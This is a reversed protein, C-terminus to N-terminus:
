KGSGSLKEAIGKFNIINVQERLWVAFESDSEYEYKEIEAMAEDVGNMSFGRCAELLKSLVQADLKDKKPKPNKLDIAKIMDELGNILQRVSELFADNHKNIFNLDGAIAAKELSKAKEGIEDAFISFSTGKIGHVAIEYSKLNEESVTKLIELLHRNDTVYSRLINLYTNVNGDYKKLGQAIDLGPIESDLMISQGNINGNEPPPEDYNQLRAAEIVEPPQKDRVFRNLVSDLQRIDIPKSIFADFGNQFYKEAQGIVANATLAVIPSSYGLDRLYHTTEVGDMGPMMHDMFVVDYVKGSQIKDIAEQGGKATDVKLKYPRLLGAAVYMNTEIDDVVLVNGYPMPERVIQLRKRHANYDFRFNRLNDTLEKGLTQSGAVEQPLRVTFLSGKGAESHVHIDGGMLDVLSQTITLGLGVGDITRNNSQDFRSYEDFLRSVQEPTMGFGTDKVSIVLIIEKDTLCPQLGVSLIVKGSETYKFANSLLNSLIQKIRLDDGILNLPLNEDIELEFEIPKSEIWMVSLQVSDSILSAVEYEVPVIDLKGAEIKSFDLIDNIIGLLLDCSNHIRYLGDATKESLTEDQTLIETVGMIANMPTRIEHSMKALFRSKAKDSEAAVEAKRMEEIVAKQERLDRFYEVVINEGKYKVRIMTLECPLLEGALSQYVFEENHVFGNELALNIHKFWLPITRSGDPQFKPLCDFIRMRYENKNDIGLFSLAEQNCDIIEHDHSILHCSLPMSDLMLQLRKEDELAKDVAIQLKVSIDRINLVMENRLLANAFLLGSSSLIAVEEESFTREKSCDDFGAFGWFHDEIFVPVALISLVGQKSLHEKVEPVMDRVRSNITGGSSLTEEWGPAVESYPINTTLENGQQPQAGGSWEFIQTCCLVGDLEHNRWLFVRDVDVVEAVIKMSQILSSDLSDIDANLMLIAARNVARLLSDRHEIQELMRLMSDSYDFEEITEMIKDHERSERIIGAVVYDDGYRIRTLTVEAPLLKGEGPIQHMWDGAWAGEEFAKRVSVLAKESASQGDTQYEPFCEKIFRQFYEQKDWFGFLRVAAENCDIINLNRDWVHCSLPLTDLMLRTREEDERIRAAQMNRNIANAIILVGFNLISYEEETFYRYNEFDHIGCAGWLQNQIFIPIILTSEIGFFALFDRDEQSLESIPGQIIEGQAFRSAWNHSKSYPLNFVGADIIAQGVKESNWYYKLTGYLEGDIMNNQWIQFCEVKVSRSIIELGAILSSEFIENGEAKLLLNAASSVAQLLSGRTELKEQTKKAERLNTIIKIQNKIRHRVIAPTFPKRIYDAAGMNLAKEEDANSSLFTIIIVPISKTKSSNKLVSLVEYGDMGSMVIDLLIIDPLYKKAAFVAEQGNRAKFLTYEHGLMGELVTINIGEDDVILISNKKAEDVNFLIASYPSYLM